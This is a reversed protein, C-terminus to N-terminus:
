IIGLEKLITGTFAKAGEESMFFSNLFYRDDDFRTDDMYDLFPVNRANAKRIFAHIYNERCKDTFRKRLAPHVPPIALVPKLDRELCFGIMEGLVRTRNERDERHQGSLPADLDGIGFQRKWGSVFTAASEEMDCRPAPRRVARKAWEKLTRKMCLWPMERVPSERIRLAKIREEEEFGPITAPHLFTYYKLNTSKNYRPSVLSSFQSITIIVTAGAKLYSFYNKLVNFDHVLSQPGIAWNMGAVDLGEYNFAYKGSNSGLNVVDLNFRDLYWFKQVGNWYREYWETHRVVKNCAREALNKM